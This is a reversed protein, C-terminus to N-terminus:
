SLIIKVTSTKSSHKTLNLSKGETGSKTYMKAMSMNFKTLQITDISIIM